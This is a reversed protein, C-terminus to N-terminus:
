KIKRTIRELNRKEIVPRKIINFVSGAGMSILCELVVTQLEKLMTIGLATVVYLLAFPLLTVLRQYIANATKLANIQNSIQAKINVDTAEALQQLYKNMNDQYQHEFITKATLVLVLVLIVGTFSLKYGTSVDPSIYTYIIAGAPGGFTFAFDLISYLYSKTTNSM